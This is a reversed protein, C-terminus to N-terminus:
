IADEDFISLVKPPSGIELGVFHVVDVMLMIGGHVDELPVTSQTWRNRCGQCHSEWYTWSEICCSTPDVSVREDDM